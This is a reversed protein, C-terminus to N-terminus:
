FVLILLVNDLVFGCDLLNVLNFNVDFFDELKNVVVGGTFEMVHLLLMPQGLVINHQVETHDLVHDIFHDLLVSVQQSFLKLCSFSKFVVVRYDNSQIINEHNSRLNLSALILQSHFVLNLLFFFLDRLVFLLVFWKSLTIKVLNELHLV